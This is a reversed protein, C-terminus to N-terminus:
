GREQAMGFRGEVAGCVQGDRRPNAHGLWFKELDWSVRNKRLHATRFRRFAHFGKEDQELNLDRRIKGLGDRLVNRQSLPKGLGSEFLFGSRRNGVFDKVYVALKEPTVWFRGVTSTWSM